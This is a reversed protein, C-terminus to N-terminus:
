RSVTGAGGFGCSTSPWWQMWMEVTCTEPLIEGKKAIEFKKIADEFVEEMLGGLEKPNKFGYRM